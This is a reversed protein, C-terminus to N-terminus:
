HSILLIDPNTASKLSANNWIGFLHLESSRSSIVAPNFRNIRRAPSNIVCFVCAFSIFCRPCIRGVITLWGLSLVLWSSCNSCLPLYGALLVILWSPVETGRSVAIGM